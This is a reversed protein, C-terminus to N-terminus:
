QNSKLSGLSQHIGLYFVTGQLPDELIIAGGWSSDCYAHLQIGSSISLLIRQGLSNKLYRLVQMVAVYHSQRTKDLFQNLIQMSYTIDLRIVTLYLFRGM